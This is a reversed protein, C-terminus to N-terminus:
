AAGKSSKRVFRFIWYGIPKLNETEVNISGGANNCLSLHSTRFNYKIRCLHRMVQYRSM